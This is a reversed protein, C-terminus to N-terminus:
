LVHRLTEIRPTPEFARRPQLCRGRNSLLDEGEEEQHKIPTQIGITVSGGDNSRIYLKEVKGRYLLFCNLTESM